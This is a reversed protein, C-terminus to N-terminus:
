KKEGKKAACCRGPAASSGGMVRSLVAPSLPLFHGLLLGVGLPLVVVRLVGSGRGQQARSGRNGTHISVRGRSMLMVWLKEADCILQSAALLPLPFPM